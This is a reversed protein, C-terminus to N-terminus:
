FNSFTLLYSRLRWFSCPRSISSQLRWVKLRCFQQMTYNCQKLGAERTKAKMDLEPWCFFGFVSGFCDCSTGQRWSGWALLRGGACQQFRGKKKRRKNERYLREVVRGAESDRGTVSSPPQSGQQLLSQIFLRQKNENPHDASIEM